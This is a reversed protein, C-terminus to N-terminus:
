SARGVAARLRGIAKDRWGLRDLTVFNAGESRLKSLVLELARPAADPWSHFLVVAPGPWRRHVDDIAMQAVDEATCGPRWDEGRADWHVHRYGAQAIARRVDVTDHELEGQPARFWPRSEIGLEALVRHCATLDEVIGAETLQSLPCHSYSHNGILHGDNKIAVVRDPNARAWCGVLFFTAKIDYRSLVALIGDASGLPDEAPQDPFEVDVTIAVVPM